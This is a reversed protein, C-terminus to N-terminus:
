PQFVGHLKGSEGWEGSRRNMTQNRLVFRLGYNPTFNMMKGPIGPAICRSKREKGGTSGGQYRVQYCARWRLLHFLNAPTTCNALVMNNNSCLDLFREIRASSHEPGQGEYGHPLYLVIGHM